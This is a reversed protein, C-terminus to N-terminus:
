LSKYLDIFVEGIMKGSHLIISVQKFWLLLLRVRQTVKELGMNNQMCYTINIRFNFLMIKKLYRHFFPFLSIVRYNVIKNDDDSKLIRLVKALKLEEPYYYYHKNLTWYGLLNLPSYMCVSLICFFGHGHAIFIFYLYLFIYM